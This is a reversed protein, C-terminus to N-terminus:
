PLRTFDLDHFDFSFDADPDVLRMDFGTIQGAFDSRFRVYADAGFGRNDWCVIFTDGDFPVLDGKLNVSKHSLFRLGKGTRVIDVRGFWNDRYAGEYAALPRLVRGSGKPTKFKPKKHRAARDQQQKYHAVWDRRAQGMYAKLLSQMVANRVGYNSGNNLVVIGLDLEPVLAVYAQFGSLTGTHSVVGFGHMDEVRWGLAYAKLHTQDYERESKGVYLITQPQWMENRRKQSFVRQGDPGKGGRLQTLMWINMGKVNCVLGGAPQSATIAGTIANRTIPRIEDDIVGYPIAVNGLRSKAIRGAYCPMDLKDLIRSQVFKEWSQGSARAVVEGAVIYLLNDYAYRSRFSTAPKLYRLNHIIEARSFGSPEPWLMLDGAGRGLGSRHTLLDRITFERTVWPDSMRFEPIYDIVRDDWNLKGEDVLIALAASTFAKTTSAIRFLTKEDVPKHAKLDRVGFGGAFVVKGDKVIGIALGPTRFTKLAREVVSKIEAAGPATPERIGRATALFSLIFAPLVAFLIRIHTKFASTM